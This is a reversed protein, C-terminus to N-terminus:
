GHDGRGRWALAAHDSGFSCSARRWCVSVSFSHGVSDDSLCRIRGARHNGATWGAQAVNRRTGFSLVLNRGRDSADGSTFDPWAPTRFAGHGRQHPRAPDACRIRRACRCRTKRAITEHRFSDHGDDTWNRTSGLARSHRAGHRSSRVPHRPAGAGDAQQSAFGLTSNSTIVLAASATRASAKRRSRSARASTAASSRALRSPGASGSASAAHATSISRRTAAISAPRHLKLGPLVDSAPDFLYERGTFRATRDLSGAEPSSVPATRQYSTRRAPRPRSNKSATAAVLVRTSDLRFDALRDGGITLRTACEHSAKGVLDHIPEPWGLDHNHRNGVQLTAWAIPLISTSSDAWGLPRGNWRIVTTPQLTDREGALELSFTYGRSVAFM